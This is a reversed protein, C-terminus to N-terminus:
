EKRGGRVEVHFQIESRADRTERDRDRRGRRDRGDACLYCNRLGEVLSLALREVLSQSVCERDINSTSSFSHDVVVVDRRRGRFALDMQQQRAPFLHLYRQRKRLPRHIHRNHRNRPVVVLRHRHPKLLLLTLLLLGVAVFSGGGNVARFM